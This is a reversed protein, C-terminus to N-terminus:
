GMSDDLKIKIDVMNDNDKPSFLAGGYVKKMLLNVTDSIQGIEDESLKKKKKAYADLPCAINIFLGLIILILMFKKKFTM